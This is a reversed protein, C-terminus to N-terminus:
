GLGQTGSLVLLKHQSQMTKVIPINYLIYIDNM